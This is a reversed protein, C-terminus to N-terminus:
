NPELNYVEVLAVGSTDNKGRVIPTYGGPLLTRVIAAERPDTPPVTSAIIDPAQDSQWDDNEAFKTGNGDHLALTTDALAGAVGHTGLSPGIARVIVKTPQGGGIVFGGIMVNDGTEVKGRTSINAIRSNTNSQLDYLEVLAVGTTNGLGRVIATYGGPALTAVIASEHEDAPPTNSALVDDRHSNWNDNQAILAGSPGHLELRPDAMKGAVPLSPGIARLIVKKPETGTIIFGGILVNDGTQAQLRTSVNLLSHPRPIPPATHDSRGTAVVRVEGPGSSSSPIVVFLKQGTLDIALDGPDKDNMQITGIPVFTNTDFLYIRGPSFAGHYLVSNDRSFVAAAPYPGVLFSGSATTLDSANIKATSYAPYGINGGGGPHVLFRGDSSLALDQPNSSIGGSQVQVATDNSIDIKSLSGTGDSGFFLTRGDPSCELFAPGATFGNFGSFAPRSIGTASDIQILQGFPTAATAYLRGAAGEVVDAATQSSSLGPLSELTQLDIVSIAPASSGTNAVWLKSGDRSVSLGFPGIGVPITKIVELAGTDIVAVANAFQLTAYIRPQTPDGVLQAATLPLSKLITGLTGGAPPPAVVIRLTVQVDGSSSHATVHITYTGSITPIGSIAGTTANLSLGPPLDSCEFSTPNNPASVVYNFSGGTAAMLPLIAYLDDAGAIDDAALHDLNTIISNMIAAVSQGVEDPHGLGLVHGFEHLAVRHLDWTANGGSGQVPGRYSDWRRLNNFVVDTETFTGSGGTSLNVTVALVNSGFAEGYINNAFFVNNHGDHAAPPLAPGQIFRVTDLQENWLRMADAASADWSPSGDQLFSISRVLQLDMEISSNRPWRYGNLTFSFVSGSFALCLAAHFAARRWPSFMFRSTKRYILTFAFRHKKVAGTSSTLKALKRRPIFEFV